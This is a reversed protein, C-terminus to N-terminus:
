AGARRARKANKRDVLLQARDVKGHKNLPMSEVHDLSSPCLHRPLEARARSLLALREATGEYFARIRKTKEDFACRCRTVGDMREFEADIEELEVRHGQYKIQNDKRGAFFVEGQESLIGLDGTRYVREPFLPNLPNQVFVKATQQPMGVYGLAVSPGSVVVEGKQGPETVQTNDDAVLAVGNHAFAVGMPIGEHYDRNPDLVHYLCNCTIETPGYLNVFTTQPLHARWEALHKLPMVEGSFLVMRVCSLDAEDLAHYTTVICLAAVAWTLITVQQRVLYEVLALPQMFLERPVIVLTAGTALAGYIDKTSVDFDFPAQNALRDNPTFGFTAVFTEIFASIARHSVAVGKPEGTSGSTFLVYAPDTELSAAQAGALLQDDTEQSLLQQVTLVPVGLERSLEQAQADDPAVVCCQQLRAVIQTLRRVPAQPDVPVYFAGAWLAGMMLALMDASKEMVLVVGKRAMNRQALATGARRSQEYLQAYTLQVEGEVVACAQPRQQACSTLYGVVNNM